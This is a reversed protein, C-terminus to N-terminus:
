VVGKWKKITFRNIIALDSRNIIIIKNLKVDFACTYIWVNIIAYTTYSVSSALAAGEVGWIPILAIVLVVNLLASIVSSITNLKPKGRGVIIRLLLKNYSLAVTGPLLLMFPYLASMYAKGYLISILMKSITLVALTVLLAFYLNIKLILHAIVEDQKNEIEAALPLIIQAITAPLIKIINAMALAIAYYGLLIPEMFYALYFQDFLLNAKGSLSSLWDYISFKMLKLFLKRSAAIKFINISISIRYTSIIVCTIILLWVFLYINANPFVFIIVIVGIIKLAEWAFSSLMQRYIFRNAYMMSASMNVLIYAVVCISLAFRNENFKATNPFLKEGFMLMSLFYVLALILNFYFFCGDYDFSKNRDKIRYYIYASGLSFTGISAIATPLIIISTYVGRQEPGLARALLISYVIGGAFTFLSVITSLPIKRAILKVNDNRGPLQASM